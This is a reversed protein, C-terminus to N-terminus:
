AAAEEKPAAVIRDKFAEQVLPHSFKSAECYLYPRGDSEMLIPYVKLSGDKHFWWLASETNVGSPISVKLSPNKSKGMRAMLAKYDTEPIYFKVREKLDVTPVKPAATPISAQIPASLGQPAKPSDKLASITPLTIQQKAM